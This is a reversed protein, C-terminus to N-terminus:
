TLTLTRAASFPLVFLIISIINRVIKRSGEHPELLDINNKGAAAMAKIVGEFNEEAHRYNSHQSIAGVLQSIKHRASKLGDKPMDLMYHVVKRQSVKLGDVVSPLKRRIDEFAYLMLEKKIFEGYTVVRSSYPSVTTIQHQCIWIKREDARKPNFVKDLYNADIDNWIFCRTHEKNKFYEIALRISTGLGKFYEITWEAPIVKSQWATYDSLLKFGKIQGTQIHTARVIDTTFDQLFLPVKLLTPCLCYFMNILLGKIHAGDVDQDTMIMVHRYRLTKIDKCIYGPGFDKRFHRRPVNRLELGLASFIDQVEASIKNPTRIINQLVGEIAYVGYKENGLVSLGKLAFEKASTGETIILTCGSDPVDAMLADTLGNSHADKLNRIPDKSEYKTFEVDLYITSPQCLLYM